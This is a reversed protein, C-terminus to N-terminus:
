LWGRCRGASCRVEFGLATYFPRVAPDFGAVLHPRRRAAAEVLRRGIGQGRRGPRVAVAEIEPGRLALAGLIRDDAVAVLVASRRVLGHDVELLAAELISRVPVYEDPTAARVTVSSEADTM